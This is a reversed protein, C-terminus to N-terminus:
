RGEMMRRLAAVDARDRERPPVGTYREYDLKTRLICEISAVPCQVGELVRIESGLSGALLPWRAWRGPVSMEGQANVAVLYLEVLQGEKRWISAEDPHPHDVHEYGAAEMLDAVRPGDHERIFFEIDGHERTVAGVLFDISWGGFLWHPIRVHALLRSVEDILQLQVAAM